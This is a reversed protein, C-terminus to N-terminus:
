VTLRSSHRATPLSAVPNVDAGIEATHRLARV